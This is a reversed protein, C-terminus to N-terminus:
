EGPAVPDPTPLTQTSLRLEQFTASPLASISLPQTTPGMM